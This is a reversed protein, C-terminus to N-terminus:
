KFHFVMFLIFAIIPALIKSIISLSFSIISYVIVYIVMLLFPIFGDGAGKRLMELAWLGLRILLYKFSTNHQQICIHIAMDMFWKVTAWSKQALRYLEELYTM